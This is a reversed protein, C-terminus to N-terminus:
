EIPRVGIQQELSVSSAASLRYERRMERISTRLLAEILVPNHTVQGQRLAGGGGATRRILEFNWAASLAVTWTQNQSTAWHLPSGPCNGTGRCTWWNDTRGGQRHAQQLLTSLENTLDIFRQSVVAELSRAVAESGHCGAATCTRYTKQTPACPGVTPLGNADVCPTAEFTHGTSIVTQGTVADTTEFRPVHCGACLRPNRESGHTASIGGPFEMGGLWAGAFGLLTPGEPSHPGRFTTLDPTGRKHHCKMCLNEEESPVSISFRLQGPIGARHPDHCVGCTIALNQAPNAVHTRKEAFEARVGWLVLADEGTHCGWCAERGAPSTPQNGANPIRGHASRAWEAHYPDVATSHCQGCGQPQELNTGVALPALPWNDRTPARVHNLSPGHCSECQVDQYRTDRVTAWGGEQTFLNGLQNTTHQLGWQNQANAGLGQLRQWADAHATEQWQRQVSTHCNGCVTLKTQPNSYGVFGAAAAAPEDFIPRDRYVITECGVLPLALMLAPVAFAWRLLSLRM